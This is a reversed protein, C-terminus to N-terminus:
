VVSKRDVLNFGLLGGLQYGHTLEMNGDKLLTKECGFMKRIFATVHTTDFADVTYQKPLEGEDNFGCLTTMADIRKQIFEEKYKEYNEIRDKYYNQEEQAIELGGDYRNNFLYDYYNKEIQKDANSKGYKDLENYPIGDGSKYTEHQQKIYEEKTLPAPGKSEYNEIYSSYFNYSGQLSDRKCLAEYEPGFWETLEKLKEPEKIKRDIMPQIKDYGIITENTHLKTLDVIIKTDSFKKGNDILKEVKYGLKAGVSTSSDALSTVGNKKYGASFDIEKSATGNENHSSLVGNVEASISGINSFNVNGSISSKAAVGNDFLSQRNYDRKDLERGWVAEDKMAFEQYSGYEDVFYIYGNNVLGLDKKYVERAADKMNKADLIYSAGYNNQVFKGDSRQWLLTTHNTSNTGGCLLTAQIGCEELLMMGFESITSCVFGHLDEGNPTDLIKQLVEQSNNGQHSRTFGSIKLLNDKGKDYYGESEELLQSIARQVLDPNTDKNQIIFSKLDSCIKNLSEGNAIREKMNDISFMEFFEYGEALITEIENSNLTIEQHVIEGSETNIDRGLIFNTNINHYNDDLLLVNDANKAEQENTYSVQASLETVESKKFENNKKSKKSM